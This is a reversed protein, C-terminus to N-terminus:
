LWYSRSFCCLWPFRRRKRFRFSHLYNHSNALWGYLCYLFHYNDLLSWHLWRVSLSNIVTYISTSFTYNVLLLLVWCPHSIVSFLSFTKCHQPPLNGVIWNVPPIMEQVMRYLFFFFHCTSACACSNWIIFFFSM